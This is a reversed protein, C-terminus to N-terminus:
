RPGCISKMLWTRDTGRAHGLLLVPSASTARTEAAWGTDDAPTWGLLTAAGDFGLKRM